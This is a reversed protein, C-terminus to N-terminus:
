DEDAETEAGDDAGKAPKETDLGQGRGPHDARLKGYAHALASVTEGHPALDSPSGGDALIEHVFDSHGRGHARGQGPFEKGERDAKRAAAAVLAAGAKALGKAKQEFGAADADTLDKAAQGGEAVAQRARELVHDPPSALVAPAAVTMALGWSIGLTVIRKTRSPM